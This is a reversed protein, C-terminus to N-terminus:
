VPYHSAIRCVQCHVMVPASRYDSSLIGGLLGCQLLGALEASPGVPISKNLASAAPKQVSQM